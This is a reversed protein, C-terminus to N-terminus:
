PKELLPNSSDGWSKMLNRLSKIEINLYIWADKYEKHNPDNPNIKKPGNPFAAYYAKNTQEDVSLKPYTRVAWLANYKLDEKIVLQPYDKEWQNLMSHGIKLYLHRYLKGIPTQEYKDLASKYAKYSSFDKRMPIDDGCHTYYQILLRAWSRYGLDSEINAFYHPAPSIEKGRIQWWEIPGILKPDQSNDLVLKSPLHGYFQKGIGWSQCTDSVWLDEESPDVPQEDDTQFYTGYFKDLNYKVKIQNDETEVPDPKDEEDIEDIKPLDPLKNDKPPPPPLSDTDLEIVSDDKKTDKTTSTTAAKAPKQTLFYAAALGGLLVVPKLAM